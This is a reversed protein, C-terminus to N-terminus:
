KLRDGGGAGRGDGALHMRRRGQQVEFVGCPPEGGPGARDHRDMVGAADAIKGREIAKSAFVAQADDLIGRMRKAAGVLASLDAGLAVHNTEAEVADLVDSGTFAARDHGTIGSDGLTDAVRPQEADHAVAFIAVLALATPVEVDAVRAPAVMHAIDHSGDAADLEPAELGVEPRAADRQRLA